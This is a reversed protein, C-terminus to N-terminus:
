ECLVRVVIKPLTVAKPKGKEKLGGDLRRMASSLTTARRLMALRRDKGSAHRQMGLEVRM